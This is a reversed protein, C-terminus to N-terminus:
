YSRLAVDPWPADQPVTATDRWLPFTDLSPAMDPDNIAGLVATLFEHRGEPLADRLFDLLYGISWPHAVGGARPLEPGLLLLKLRGIPDAPNRGALSASLLALFAIAPTVIAYREFPARWTEALLADAAAHRRIMLLTLSLNNWRHATLPHTIGVVAPSNEACTRAYPKALDPRGALRLNAALNNQRRLVDPHTLGHAHIEAELV